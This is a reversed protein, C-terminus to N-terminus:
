REEKHAHEAQLSFHQQHVANTPGVLLIRIGCPPCVFTTHTETPRSQVAMM